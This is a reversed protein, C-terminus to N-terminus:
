GRTSLIGLIDRYTVWLMLLILLFFGAIHFANELTRNVPKRAVAFLGLFFLRGGDLAPFPVLNVIGLTVSLLAMQFLLWKFGSELAQLTYKFIGVPGVIEAEKRGTFLGTFFEWFGQFVSAFREGAIQFGQILGVPEREMEFVLGPHQREEMQLTVEFPNGERMGELRIQKPPEAETIQLSAQFLEPPMGEIRQITDGVRVGAKEAPSHPLIQVVKKTIQAAETLLVGLGVMREGPQGIEGPTVSIERIGGRGEVKLLLPQNGASQVSRSLEMRNLTKGNVSLILEGAGLGAKEAPSGPLVGQILPIHRPIGYGVAEGYFLLYGALLNMLPGAVLILSKQWTKKTAYSDPELLNTEEEDELGKLRVYGGLLLLRLSLVTSKFPKKVLPPGFGVSFEKVAVGMMRAGVFHGWEHIVILAGILLAIMLYGLFPALTM